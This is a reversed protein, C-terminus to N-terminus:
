EAIWIIQILSIICALLLIKAICYCFQFIYATVFSMKMVSSCSAPFFLFFLIGEQVFWHRKAIASRYKLAAVSVISYCYVSYFPVYSVLLDSLFNTRVSELTNKMRSPIRLMWCWMNNRVGESSLFENIEM